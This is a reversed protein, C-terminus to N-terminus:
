ESVVKAHGSRNRKGGLNKHLERWHYAGIKHASGNPYKLGEEPHPWHARLPDFATQARRTALIDRTERRSAWRKGSPSKFSAM